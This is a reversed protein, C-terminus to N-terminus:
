SFIVIMIFFGCSWDDTQVTHDLTQINFNELSIDLLKSQEKLCNLNSKLNQPDIIILKRAHYDILILGWHNTGILSPVVTFAM